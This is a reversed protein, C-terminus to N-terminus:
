FFQECNRRPKLRYCKEKTAQIAKEDLLRVSDVDFRFQHDDERQVYGAVEFLNPTKVLTNERGFLRVYLPKGAQFNNWGESRSIKSFLELTYGIDADSYEVVEWYVVTFPYYAILKSDEPIPLHRKLEKEVSEQSNILMPCSNTFKFQVLKPAYQSGKWDYEGKGGTCPFGLATWPSGKKIGNAGTTTKCENLFKVILAGTQSVFQPLNQLEEALPVCDPDGQSPNLSKSESIREKPIYDQTDNTRLEEAPRIEQRSVCSLLAQMGLLFLVGLGKKCMGESGRIFCGDLFLIM